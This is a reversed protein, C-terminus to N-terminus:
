GFIGKDLSIYLQIRIPEPEALGGCVEENLDICKDLAKLIFDVYGLEFM